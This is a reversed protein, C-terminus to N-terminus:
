QAFTLPLMPGHRRQCNFAERSRFYIVALPEHKGDLLVHAHINKVRAAPVGPARRAAHLEEAALRLLHRLRLFRSEGLTSQAAHAQRTLDHGIVVHRTSNM